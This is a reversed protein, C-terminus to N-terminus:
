FNYTLSVGASQEHYSGKALFYRYELGLDTSASLSTKLGVIGQGAFCSHQTINFNLYSQRPALRQIAYGAGFGIYPTIWCNFDFDTYGNIMFSLTEADFHTSYSPLGWDYDRLVYKGQNRRYAVEGEFRCSPTLRYGFALASVYGVRYAEFDYDGRLQLWNAGGFASVYYHSRENSENACVQINILTTIAIAFSLVYKKMEFEKTLNKFM